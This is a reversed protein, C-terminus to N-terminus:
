EDQYKKIKNEFNESLAEQVHLIVDVLSRRNKINKTVGKKRIGPQLLKESNIKSVIIAIRSINDKGSV